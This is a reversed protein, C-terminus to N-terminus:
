LLLRQVNSARSYSAEPVSPRMEAAGDHLGTGGQNTLNWGLLFDHRFVDAGDINITLNFRNSSGADDEDKTLAALWVDDIAAM